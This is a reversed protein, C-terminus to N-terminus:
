NKALIEIIENPQSIVTIDEPTNHTGERAIRGGLVFKPCASGLVRRLEHAMASVEKLHEDLTASFGVIKPNLKSIKDIGEQRNKTLLAFSKVGQSQLWASSIRAGLTHTNNPPCVIIVEPNPEIEFNFLSFIKECFYTFRHEDDVSIQGTEWLKGIQYLLPTILGILIDVPRLGSQIAENVLKEALPFNESRGADWFKQQLDKLSKVVRRGDESLQLNKTHCEQCVGHTYEFNDYPKIEGQFKQCYMCWKIM